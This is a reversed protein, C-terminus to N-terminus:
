WAWRGDRFVPVEEGEAAIGTVDLDDAGIMFDVHTHSHNVGHALLEDVSMDNGGEICEPFGTGLALHCSANEDFLTNYFLLGSERIPTDKSILSCEGLRRANEDTDLISALVDKGEAAGFSTVAGDHFEFWFDRVISGNHVLPLASHVVGEARLRDPSTFVEETPINPQFEVGADTTMSGGGWVHGKTMGLTLDTGNSSTYHLRDFRGANLKGRNRAFSRNHEDWATIPDGGDARAASLIAKWLRLQAEEDSEADPFVVRSWAPVPVGGISWANHGFDLGNRWVDCEANRSRRAAAPKAQDIGKLANPDEGFLSLFCAGAAALSNMQEVKWSPTHEFYELPANEYDLRATQDDGWIVTVHRAGAAYGARVVRRTFGYAEVPANVVLEQGPQVAVGTRVLLDAYNDLAQSLASIGAKAEDETM